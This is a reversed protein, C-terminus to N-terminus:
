LTPIYGSPLAISKIQYCNERGERARERGLGSRKVGGFPGGGGGPPAENIRCTGTTVRRAVEVGRDLDETFVAGGLGYDSDNAIRVADADDDYAMVSIVPGFIEEQAITMDTTVGTFVTPEVFWGRDLNRPRAGGCAVTAGQERGIALYKEVRERQRRAALPGVATSKEHPDGVVLGSVAGVLADIMEQERSRPVLIRTTAFCLEGNNPMSSEIVQSLRKDIDVDDLLIAASKGGLELTVSKFSSAALSAVREGAATSGTFSIRNVGPHSVLREGVEVGGPIISVVGEPIGAEHFAEAVLYASLPTEPAPKAIVTCGALLPTVMRGLLSHVPGNWPIIAGVVGIPLREVLVKGAPGDRLEATEFAEMEAVEAAISKVAGGTLPGMFSLPSGMEDIQLHVIEDVRPALLEMVRTLYAGREKVTMHPWPGEDFANRAAAVAVDVDAPTALPVTAFVEETMPSVVDLRDQGAPRRWRSGIYIEERNLM